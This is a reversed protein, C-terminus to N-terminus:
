VSCFKTSLFRLSSQKRKALSAHCPVMVLMRLGEKKCNGTDSYLREGYRGRKFDNLQKIFSNGVVLMYM